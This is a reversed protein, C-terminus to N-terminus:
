GNGSNSSSPPPSSRYDSRRGRRQYKYVAKNHEALTASFQHTGDGKAVFYLSKGDAPHLVANIAERGPNAIPTPPLGKIVYTNYPTKRKLDARTINGQYREGMGYIVTPDTQLRMGKILRRSFVGAIEPREFAAGTEKEVISALILAEYPTKIPLKDQKAAWEQELIQQMRQYARKLLELDSTGRTFQYTDPYIWGEASGEIQLQKALQLPDDFDLTKKIQPHAQLRAIFDSVRQGEVLTVQYSRVKGQVLLQLLGDHTLGPELLYEGAKIRHALKQQRAHLKFLLPEDIVQQQSLKDLLANFSTGPEVLLSTSQTIKLPQQALSTVKHSGVYAAIAVVLAILAVGISVMKLM